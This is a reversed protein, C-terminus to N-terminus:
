RDAEQPQDVELAIDIERHLDEATLLGHEVAYQATSGIQELLREREDYGSM